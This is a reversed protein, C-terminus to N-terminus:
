DDCDADLRIVSDDDECCKKDPFIASDDGECCKKDPFIASNNDDCPPPSTPPIPTPPIPTPPIPTPPIPTPPIPTPPIPTPPILTPPIPTPPILTPPVPTPPVPTPPIRTFTPPIPTTSNQTSTPPMQTSTPMVVAGAGSVIPTISPVIPTAFTIPENIAFNEIVDLSQQEDNMMPRADTWGCAAIVSYEGTGSGSADSSSLCTYSTYGMPIQKQAPTDPNTVAQGELTTLQLLADVDGDFGYDTQLTNLITEDVAVERLMITSGLRIEVGNANIQIQLQEPSQVILTNPAEDCELRGVATRLYFAQMPTYVRHDIRPLINSPLGVLDAARVWGAFYDSNHDYSVRAWQQNLSLADVMLPTYRPITRLLASDLVPYFYLPTEFRATVPHASDITQVPRNDARNEIQTDGMLMFLANQGPLASPINAQVSLLAIGWQNTDMTLPTTQLRTLMALAARESPITFFEAAQPESFEALVQSNGYCASNRALGACHNQVNQLAQEVFAPCQAANALPDAQIRSRVVSLGIIMVLAIM